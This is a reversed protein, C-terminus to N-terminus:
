SSELNDVVHAPDQAHHAVLFIGLDTAHGPTM